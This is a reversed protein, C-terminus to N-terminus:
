VKVFPNRVETRIDGFYYYHCSNHKPDDRNKVERHLEDNTFETFSNRLPRPADRHLHFEPDDTNSGRMDSTSRNHLNAKRIQRYILISMQKKRKRKIVGPESQVTRAPALTTQSDTNPHIYGAECLLEFLSLGGAIEFEKLCAQAKINGMGKWPDRKGRLSIEDYNSLLRMLKMLRHYLTKDNVGARQIIMSRTFSAAQSCATFESSNERARVFSPSTKFQKRTPGGKTRVLWGFVSNYFSLDDFTGSMKIDGVQFAM